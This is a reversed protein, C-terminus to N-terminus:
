KKSGLYNKLKDIVVADKKGRSQKRYGDKVSFEYTKLFAEPTLTYVEVGHFITTVFDKTPDAVEDRTLIGHKAFNVKHKNKDEFEHEKEDVLAFGESELLDRFVVWNEDLWKDQVLIDLDGFEKFDGLYVGVGVSGYLVSSIGHPKLFTEVKAYKAIMSKLDFGENENRPKSDTM